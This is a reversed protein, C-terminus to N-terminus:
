TCRARDFFLIGYKYERYQVAVLKFEPKSLPIKARPGARNQVPIVSFTFVSSVGKYDMLLSSVSSEINAIQLDVDINFTMDHVTSGSDTM